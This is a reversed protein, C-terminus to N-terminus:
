HSTTGLYNNYLNFISMSLIVVTIINLNNIEIYAINNKNLTWESATYVVVYGNTYESFWNQIM